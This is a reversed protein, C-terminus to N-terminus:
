RVLQEFRMATQGLGIQDGPQILTPATIRRGNVLTGHSSGLDEISIQAGRRVIRAHRRSLTPDGALSIAAESSRGIVTEPLTLEFTSGSGHGGIITLRGWAASEAPRPAAPWAPITAAPPHAPPAADIPPLPAPQAPPAPAPSANRRRALVVTFGILTLTILCLGSGGLAVALFVPSAILGLLGSSAPTGGFTVCADIRGSGLLRLRQYYSPHNPYIDVTGSRIAETVEAVGWEPHQALLLAAMGSVFPAAQSTGSMFDYDQAFREDEPLAASTLYVEYTPMTSLIREGPATVDIWPGSNSFAAKTDSRTSAAVVIVGENEGVIANPLPVFDNGAAVVVVVNRALAGAIARSILPSSEPTALLLTSGLSLNIVRAGREVAYTIGAAISRDGGSGEADMVRVPLIQASPALGAVGEGNGIVAAVIGSVHTGHGNEDSPDSDNDVFDFGDKRLHPALDPHGMDVGSDVVAVIVDRPPAAEWACTAGIRELAWQRGYLPDNPTGGQAAVGAPLLALLFVIALLKHRM